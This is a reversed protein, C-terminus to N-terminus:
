PGPVEAIHGFFNGDGFPDDCKGTEFEVRLDVDVQAKEFRRAFGASGGMAANLAEGFEGELLFEGPDFFIQAGQVFYFGKVERETGAVFEGFGGERVESAMEEVSFDPGQAFGSEDFEERLGSCFNGAEYRGEEVGDGRKQFLALFEGEVFFRIRVHGAVEGGEQGFAEEVYNRELLEGFNRAVEFGHCDAGFAGGVIGDFVGLALFLDLGVKIGELLPRGFARGVGGDAFEAPEEFFVFDGKEGLFEAGFLGDGGAAEVVEKQLMAFDQLLLTRCIHLSQSKM